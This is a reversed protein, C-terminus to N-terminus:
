NQREHRVGERSLEAMFQLKGTSGDKNLFDADEGRSVKGIGYIRFSQEDEGFEYIVTYDDYYLEQNGPDFNDTPRLTGDENLREGFVARVSEEISESDTQHFHHLAEAMAPRYETSLIGTDIIKRINILTEEQFSSKEYFQYMFISQFVVTLFVFVRIVIQTSKNKLNASAWSNLYFLYIYVIVMATIIGGWRYGSMAFLNYSVVSLVGAVVLAWEPKKMNNEM